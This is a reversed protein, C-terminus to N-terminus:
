IPLVWSYVIWTNMIFSLSLSLSLSLPLFPSLSSFMRNFHWLLEGNLKVTQQQSLINVIHEYKWDLVWCRNERKERSLSLRSTHKASTQMQEWYQFLATMINYDKPMHSYAPSLSTHHWRGDIWSRSYGPFLIMIHANGFGCYIKWYLGLAANLTQM